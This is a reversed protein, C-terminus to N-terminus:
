ADTFKTVTVTLPSSADGALALKDGYKKPKLKAAIWKRADVRLRARSIHDHDAVTRGDEQKIYDRSGDDAIDIIEDALTDAQDERARTYMESFQTHKTLWLYVSAQSPMGETTCIFKLSEGQGIRECILAALELSYDTPRGAPM